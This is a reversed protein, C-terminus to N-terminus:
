CPVVSFGVFKVEALVGDCKSFKFFDSNVTHTWALFIEFGNQVKMGRGVEIVHALPNCEKILDRVKGGSVM